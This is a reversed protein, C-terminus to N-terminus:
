GTLVVRQSFVEVPTRYGHTPPPDLVLVLRVMGTGAIRPSRHVIAGEHAQGPWGCGKFFAVDGARMARAQPAEGDPQALVVDGQSSPVWQTGPGRYTCILRLPVCDRHWRRCANDTVVDLRLRVADAQVTAAFLAVLAAMDAVFAERQPGSPTGAADCSGHLAGAAGRPALEMRCSPLSHPPLRDLWALWTPHAARRWMALEVGPRAIARLAEVSTGLHVTPEAASVGPAPMVAGPPQPCVPDTEDVMEASHRHVGDDSLRPHGRM